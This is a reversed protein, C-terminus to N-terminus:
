KTRNKEVKMKEQIAEPGKLFAEHKKRETYAKADITELTCLWGLM